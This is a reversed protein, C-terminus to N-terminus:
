YEAKEGKLPVSPPLDPTGAYTLLLVVPEDGAEGRHPADVSEAFAEGQHYVHTLGSNKDRLTLTGSLVYGANPVPHTHWPLATHAAITLKIMTLEPQGAPYHTYAKGNWAVTAKLLTERHGTASHLVPASQPGAATQAFALNQGAVALLSCLVLSKMM